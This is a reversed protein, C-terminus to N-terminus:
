VNGHNEMALPISALAIIWLIPAFCEFRDFQLLMVVAFTIYWRFHVVFFMLLIRIFFTHRFLGNDLMITLCSEYLIDESYKVLFFFIFRFTWCNGPIVGINTKAEISKACFCLGLWKEHVKDNGNLHTTTCLAGNRQMEWGRCFLIMWARVSAKKGEEDAEYMWIYGHTAPANPKVRCIHTHTHTNYHM